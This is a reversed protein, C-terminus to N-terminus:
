KKQQNFMRKTQPNIEYVLLISKWTDTHEKSGDYHIYYEMNDGRGRRKIMKALHLKNKREAFIMSGPLFEVGSYIRFLDVTQAFSM